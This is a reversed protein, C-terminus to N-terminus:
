IQSSHSTADAHRLAVVTQTFNTREIARNPGARIRSRPFKFPRPERRAAGGLFIV